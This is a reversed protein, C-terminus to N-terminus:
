LNQKYTLAAVRKRRRVDNIRGSFAGGLVEVHERLSAVGVAYYGLAWTVQEEGPCSAMKRLQILDHTAAENLLIFPTAASQGALFARDSTMSEFAADIEAATKRALEKFAESLSGPYAPELAKDWHKWEREVDHARADAAKQAKVAATHAQKKERGNPSLAEDLYFFLAEAMLEDSRKPPVGSKLRLHLVMRCRIAAPDGTEVLAFVEFREARFTLARAATDSYIGEFYRRVVQQAAAFVIEPQTEYNRAHLNALPFATAVPRTPDFLGLKDQTGEQVPFTALIVLVLLVNMPFGGAPVLLM